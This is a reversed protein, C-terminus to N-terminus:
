FNIKRLITHIVVAILFGSGMGSQTNHANLDHQSKLLSPKLM